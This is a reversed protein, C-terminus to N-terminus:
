LKMVVAKIPHMSMGDSGSLCHWIGALAVRPLVFNFPIPSNRWPTLYPNLSIVVFYWNIKAIYFTTSFTYQLGLM